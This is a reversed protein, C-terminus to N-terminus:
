AAVELRDLDNHTFLEIRKAVVALEADAQSTFYGVHVVRGLHGVTARWKQSSKSWSVGRIGSKSTVSAGSRNEANQKNTVPRLHDPNVCAETHCTHDLLKGTPIDGGHLTYSFRHALWSRKKVTFTGYGKRNRRGTWLWCGPTIDVKEWFRDEFPRRKGAM